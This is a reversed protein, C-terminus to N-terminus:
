SFKNFFPKDIIQYISGFLVLWLIIMLAYGWNGLSWGFVFLWTDIQYQPNFAQWFDDPGGTSVLFVMASICYIVLLTFLFTRLIKKVAM